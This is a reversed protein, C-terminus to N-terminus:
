DGSIYRNQARQIAIQRCKDQAEKDDNFKDYKVLCNGLEELALIELHRLRKEDGTEEQSSEAPKDEAPASQTTEPPAPSPVLAKKDLSKIFENVRAQAEQRRRADERARCSSDMECQIESVAALIGPLTNVGMKLVTVLLIAAVISLPILCGSRKYRATKKTLNSPSASDEAESQHLAAM